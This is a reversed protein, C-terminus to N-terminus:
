VPTVQKANKIERKWKYLYEIVRDLMEIFDESDGGYICRDIMEQYIYYSYETENKVAFGIPLEKQRMGRRIADQSIGLQDSAEKVSLKHLM